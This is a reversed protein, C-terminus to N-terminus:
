FILNYNTGHNEPAAYLRTYSPIVYWIFLQISYFLIWIKASWINVSSKLNRLINRNKFKNQYNQHKTLCWMKQLVHFLKNHIIIFSQVQVKKTSAKQDLILTVNNSLIFKNYVLCFCLSILYVIIFVCLNYDLINCELTIKRFVFKSHFILKKAFM